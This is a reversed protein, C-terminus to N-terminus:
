EVEVGARELHSKVIELLEQLQDEEGEEHFIEKCIDHDIAEVLNKLM